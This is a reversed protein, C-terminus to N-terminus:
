SQAIRVSRTLFGLSMQSFITTDLYHKMLYPIPPTLYCHRLSLYYCYPVRRGHYSLFGHGDMLSM